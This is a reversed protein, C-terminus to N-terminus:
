GGVSPGASTQGDRYRLVRAPVGAAIANAPISRTVVSGAGIVAGEGLIVGATVRVGAGIWVNDGITTPKEVLTERPSRAAQAYDHETTLISSSHAISVNDGITLGGKCGVVCLERISINSGLNCEELYSLFSYPGIYINDGCSRALSRVAIYRLGVGIMGPTGRFLALFAYRAGRPLCKLVAALGILIFRYSRYLDRGRKL